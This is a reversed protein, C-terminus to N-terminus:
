AGGGNNSMVVERLERPLGLFLEEVKAQQKGTLPLLQAKVNEKAMAWLANMAVDELEDEDLDAWLTCEVHASCFDGLNQKRGYTVSVTKLKM